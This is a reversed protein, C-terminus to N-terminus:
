RNVNRIIEENVTAPHREKGRPNSVMVEQKAPRRAREQKDAVKGGVRPRYHHTSTASLKRPVYLLPVARSEWGIGKENRGMRVVHRFCFAAFTTCNVCIFLYEKDKLMGRDRNHLRRSTFRASVRSNQQKVVTTFTTSLQRLPKQCNDDVNSVITM